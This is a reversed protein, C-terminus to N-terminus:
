TAQFNFQYRQRLRKTLSDVSATIPARQSGDPTSCASEAAPSPAARTTSGAMPPFGVDRQVRGAVRAGHGQRLADGFVETPYPIFAVTLLLVLNLYVLGRDARAFHVFISHYNFWVIGVVTFSM